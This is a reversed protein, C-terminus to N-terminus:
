RNILSLVLDGTEPLPSRPSDSPTRVKLDTARGDLNFNLNLSVWPEDVVQTPWGQLPWGVDFFNDPRRVVALSRNDAVWCNFAFVLFEGLTLSLGKTM